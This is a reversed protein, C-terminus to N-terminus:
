EPAIVQDYIKLEDIAGVFSYDTRPKPLGSHNGIAIGPQQDPELDQVPRIPTYTHAAEKGNIYLTMKGTNDDLTGTVHTWENLAVKAELALFGDPKNHGTAKGEGPEDVAVRRVDSEDIAWRVKGSPLVCMYYPDFADRRDGRFVIMAARKEPSPFATPRIWVDVTMSRTLHLYANDPIEVGGNAKGHFVFAQGEVGPAFTVGGQVAGNARSLEDQANNEGRWWAVPVAQQRAAKKPAVSSATLLPVVAFAVLFPLLRRTHM